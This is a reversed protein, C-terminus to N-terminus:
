QVDVIEFTEVIYGEFLTKRSSIRDFFIDGNRLM